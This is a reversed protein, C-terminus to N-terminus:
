SYLRLVGRQLLRRVLFLGGFVRGDRVFLRRSDELIHVVVACADRAAAFDAGFVLHFILIHLRGRLGRM